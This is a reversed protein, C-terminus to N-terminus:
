GLTRHFAAAQDAISLDAAQAQYIGRTPEIPECMVPGAYGHERFMRCVMAADVVGTTMPMARELDQQEEPARGVIGDSIHICVTRAVNALAFRLEDMDLGGCLWHFTDFLVGTRGGAADALAIGGTITHVFPYKFDNILHKPALTELGYTIGHDDMVKQVRRIRNVHWEFNADYERINSGPWVHNYSVNAGIKECLDARRKMEELGADFAEDSVDWDTYFDIPTDIPGWRLGLDRILAAAERAQKLDGYLEAPIGIADIGAAAIKPALEKLEGPIGSFAADLVTYM